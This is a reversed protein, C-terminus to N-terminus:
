DEKVTNKLMEMRKCMNECLEIVKKRSPIQRKMEEKLEEYERDFLELLDIFDFLDEKNIDNDKDKEM